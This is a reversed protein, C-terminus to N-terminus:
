VTIHRIPVFPHVQRFIGDFSHYYRGPPRVKLIGFRDKLSTILEPFGQWCVKKCYYKSRRHIKKKKSKKRRLKGYLM